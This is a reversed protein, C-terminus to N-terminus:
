LLRFSDCGIFTFVRTIVLNEGEKSLPGVLSEYETTVVLTMATITRDAAM